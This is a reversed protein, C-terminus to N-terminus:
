TVILSAIFMASTQDRSCGVHNSQSLSAGSSFFKTDVLAVTGQIPRPRLTRMVMLGLESGCNQNTRPQITVHVLVVSSFTHDKRNDHPDMSDFQLSSDSLSENEQLLLLFTLFRTKRVLHKTSEECGM